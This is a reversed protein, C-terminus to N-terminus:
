DNVPIFTVVYRFTPSPFNIEHAPIIAQEGKQVRKFQEENPYVFKQWDDESKVRWIPFKWHYYALAQDYTIGKILDEPDQNEIPLDPTIHLVERIIFRSYRDHARVGAGQGFRNVHDLNLDMGVPKKTISDKKSPYLLEYTSGNVFYPIKLDLKGVITKAKIDMRYYKYVDMRDKYRLEINKMQEKYRKLISGNETLPFIRRNMDRDDPELNVFEMAYEDFYIKKAQILKTAEKSDTTIEAYLVETIFSDRVAQIFRHYDQVTIRWNSTYDKAPVNFAASTSILESVLPLTVQVKYPLHKQNLKQQLQVEKWHCFANAQMGTLGVGPSTPLLQDYVQGLVSYEDNISTSQNAWSDQFLIVSTNFDVTDFDKNIELIPLAYVYRLDREDIDRRQYFRNNQPLYMSVLLPFLEPDTYSFKRKWNLTYKQRNELRANPYFEPSKKVSKSINLYRLAEEDSEVYKYIYERAISDRVWNQFELYESNSVFTRKIYSSTGNSSLIAPNVYNRFLMYENQYVIGSTDGLVTISPVIRCAENTEMYPNKTRTSVSQFDPGLLKELKKQQGYSHLSVLIFLVFFLKM